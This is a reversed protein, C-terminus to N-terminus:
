VSNDFDTKCTECWEGHIEVRNQHCFCCLKKDTKLCIIEKELFQIKYELGKCDPCDELVKKKFIWM